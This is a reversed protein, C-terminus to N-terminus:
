ETTQVTFTKTTEGAAFTLTGSRATYDTGKATGNETAYNVSVPQGYANSLTVTFTLLGGEEVTADSISIQPPPAVVSVTLSADSRDGDGDVLTYKITDNGAANVPALYYWNGANQGTSNAFHFTVEGGMATTVKIFTGGNQLLAHGASASGSATVSTGNFTYTRGDIQVSQIYGGDAGFGDGNSLVNGNVSSASGLLGQMTANLQTLNTTNVIIVNDEVGSPAAVDTNPYSIPNLNATTVGSGLGIGYVQSIGNSSVFAEWEAISVDSGTGDNTIGASGWPSTPEGDSMFYVVTKDSVGLPRAQVYAEMAKTLAADYNTGGLDTWNSGNSVFAEAAARTMWASATTSDGFGIIQINQIQPNDLLMQQISYRALGIRDDSFGPVDFSVGGGSGSFMSGSRDVIFQADVTQLTGAAVSVGEGVAVPVDDIVTISANIPATDNGPGGSDSVTVRGNLNIAVNGEVNDGTTHHDIPAQLTFTYAGTTENLVLTFVTKDGTGYSGTGGGANTYGVLDGATNVAFYVQHGGSTLNGGGVLQVATNQPVAAIAYSLTGEQGSAVAASFNGTQVNTIINAGSGTTGIDTDIDPTATLDEIGGPLGHEEEVSGLVLANLTLPLNDNAGKITVSVQQDDWAGKDDTVRVTYTETVTQSANLNQV